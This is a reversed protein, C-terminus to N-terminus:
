LSVGCRLARDIDLYGAANFTSASCPLNHNFRKNDAGWETWGGCLDHQQAAAFEALLDNDRQLPQTYFRNRHIAVGIRGTMLDRVARMNDIHRIAGRQPFQHFM